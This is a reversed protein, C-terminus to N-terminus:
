AFFGAILLGLASLYGSTIQLLLWVGTFLLVDQILFTPFYLAFLSRQISHIHQFLHLAKSSLSAVVLLSFLFPKLFSVRSVIM